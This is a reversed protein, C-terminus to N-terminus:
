GFRFAGEYTSGDNMLLRGEGHFAGGQIGGEYRSGDAGEITVDGLFAGDQFAGAFTAVGPTTVRIHTVVGDEYSYVAEVGDRLTVAFDGVPLWDEFVGEMVEGAETELRAPGNLQGDRFEGEYTRTQWVGMRMWRIALRGPGALKGDVCGGAWDFTERADRFVDWLLCGDPGAAEWGPATAPHLNLLHDYLDDDVVGTEAMSWDRQYASVADFTLRNYEGNVPGPDYGEALLARQVDEVVAADYADALDFAPDAETREVARASTASLLVAMALLIAFTPSRRAPM